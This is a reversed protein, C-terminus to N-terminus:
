TQREYRTAVYTVVEALSPEFGLEKALKAQIRTLQELLNKGIPLTRAVYKRDM